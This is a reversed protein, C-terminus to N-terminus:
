VRGETPKVFLGSSSLWCVCVCVFVPIVHLVSHERYKTFKQCKIPRVYNCATTQPREVLM